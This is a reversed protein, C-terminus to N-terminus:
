IARYASEDTIDKRRGIGDDRIYIPSFSTSSTLEAGAENATRLVADAVEKSAVNHGLTNLVFFVAEGIM